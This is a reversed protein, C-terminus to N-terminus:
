QAHKKLQDKFWDVWPIPAPDIDHLMATYFSTYAGFTLMEFAQELKTKSTLDLTRFEIHNKELVEETLKVRLANNEGYLKSHIMFFLLVDDTQKPFRLGEMLHHNIEPIVRYESYTKANENLQNAFVHGVGELHQSVTVVPIHTTIEYALIKAPNTDSKVGVGSILHAAAIAELVRTYAAEDIKLMGAQAFLAIQGFISYGLGMRPQNSPNYIPDFVLVPYGHSKLLEALKGGSTIGTIKAGKRIADQTAAITEETSGSYSSAIVLTKENVFQPMEYDPVITVPVRLEDKFVSQIVHTGLASGGMGAVVINTVEKYSPDFTLGKAIEWIQQVQSGFQEISLLVNSADLKALDERSDLITDAM